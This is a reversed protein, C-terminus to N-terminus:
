QCPVNQLSTYLLRQNKDYVVNKALRYGTILNEKHADLNSCTYSASRTLKQCTQNEALKMRSGYFSQLCEELLWNRSPQHTVACRHPHPHHLTLQRSLLRPSATTAQGSGEWSGRRGRGAAGGGGGSGPGWRSEPRQPRQQM